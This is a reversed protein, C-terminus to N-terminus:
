SFVTAKTGDSFTLTLMGWDEVDVPNSKIYAHEQPPLGAAGNGVAATGASVAIREGRASAEVQKLYLVTSLPHCGMRILSGGGTMSWQAAHAAHSGSHSEEAKMFLIKDKTAELIEVTKAVAPAYIWDEAYMFLRRGSTIAARPADMEEM